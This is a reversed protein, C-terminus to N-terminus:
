EQSHSDEIQAQFPYVEIFDAFLKLEACPPENRWLALFDTEQLDEEIPCIKIGSSESFRASFYDLLVTVGLNADLMLFVTDINDIRDRIRVHVGAAQLRYYFESSYALEEKIGSTYIFDVGEFDKFTLSKKKSFPHEKNFAAVTKYRGLLHSNFHAQTSKRFAPTFIVDYEETKLGQLLQEPYGGHVQLRINPNKESFDRLFKSIGASNANDAFGIKLRGTYGKQAEATQIRAEEMLDLIKKANDLFISGAYTLKVKRSNREFLQVQLDEELNKIQLTVTTQSLYLQEATKTFNLNDSLRVFIELQKQNM